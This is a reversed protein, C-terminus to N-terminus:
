HIDKTHIRSFLERSCTIMLLSVLTHTLLRTSATGYLYMFAAYMHPLLLCMASRTTQLDIM